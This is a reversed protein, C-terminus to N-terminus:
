EAAEAYEIQQAARAQERMYDLCAPCFAIETWSLGIVVAAHDVEVGCVTCWESGREIALRSLIRAERKLPAQKEECLRVREKLVRRDEVPSVAIAKEYLIAARPFNGVEVESDAEKRWEDPNHVPEPMKIQEGRRAENRINAVTTHSCGVHRGIERTSMGEARPNALAMLVAKRVDGKKRHVPHDHNKTVAIWAADEMTGSGVVVVTLTSVGARTAAAHRHFGDVVVLEGEVEVAELAGLDVGEGYLRAYRAVQDADISERAQCRADVILDGLGRSQVSPQDM